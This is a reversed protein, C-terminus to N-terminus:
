TMIITCLFFLFAFYIQFLFWEFDYFLHERREFEKSNSVQISDIILNEKQARKEGKRGSICEFQFLSICEFQITIM